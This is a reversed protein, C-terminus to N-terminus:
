RFGRVVWAAVAGIGLFLVPLLLPPVALVALLTPFSWGGFFYRALYGSESHAFKASLLETTKNAICQVNKDGIKDLCEQEAQYRANWQTARLEDM